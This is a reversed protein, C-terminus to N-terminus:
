RYCHQYLILQHHQFQLQLHHQHNTSDLRTSDFAWMISQWLYISLSKILHHITVLTVCTTSRVLCLYLYYMFPSTSICLAASSITVHHINDFWHAKNRRNQSMTISHMNTQVYNIWTYYVCFTIPHPKFHSRVRDM